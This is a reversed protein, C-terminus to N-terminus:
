ALKLRLCELIQINNKVHHRRITIVFPPCLCLPASLLERFTVSVSFFFSLSQGRKLLLLQTTNAQFRQHILTPRLHVCASVARMRVSAAGSFEDETWTESITALNCVHCEDIKKFSKFSQGLFIPSKKEIRGEGGRKCVHM